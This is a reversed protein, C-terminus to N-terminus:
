WTSTLARWATAFAAWPVSPLCLSPVPLCPSWQLVGAGRGRFGAVVRPWGLGCAVLGARLCRPGFLPPRLAGLRVLLLCPAPLMAFPAAPRRAPHARSGLLVQLSSSTFPSSPLRSFALAGRRLARGSWPPGRAAGPSAPPLSPRPPSRPAPLRHPSPAAGFAAAAGPFGDVSAPPFRAARGARRAAPPALPRRVAPPRRASPPRVAPLPAAGFAAGAGLLGEVSVPPFRAARGARRAAPPALPSAALQSGRPARRARPRWTPALSFICLRHHASLSCFCDFPSLLCFLSSGGSLRLPFPHVRSPPDLSPAPQFM